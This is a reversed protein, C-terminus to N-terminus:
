SSQLSGYKAFSTDPERGDGEAMIQALKRMLGQLVADDPTREIQRNFVGLFLEALKFRAQKDARMNPPTSLTTVIWEVLDQRDVAAVTGALQLLAAEEELTYDESSM